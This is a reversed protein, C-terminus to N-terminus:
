DRVIQYFLKMSADPLTVGSNRMNRMHLYVTPKGDEEVIAIAAGKRLLELKDCVVLKRAAKMAKVDEENTAYALTAGGDIRVGLKALDAKLSTRSTAVKGPSGALKALEKLLGAMLDSQIEQAGLCTAWLLIPLLRTKM